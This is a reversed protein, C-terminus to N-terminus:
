KGATAPGAANSMRWVYAAVLDIQAATLKGEHVPMLSSRGKTITEVVNELGGGHLWVRDTLNPAGIAQNGKGDAGHCAACVTFKARGLNARVADSETGSLSLVYQAVNKVDEDTGLAGAMVPMQGQRGKTISTKIAEPTGGYLWDGDTLNPFGKSGRADSGHCQACNNMFIREGIGMARPDGALQETTKGQFQAYLPAVQQQMAQVEREYQGRETWGWKGPYSGLGPYLVLYGLAFVITIVFMWMWWRPLPNNYEQLTEDWVHGTTTDGGAAKVRKRSMSWLLWACAIIGVVTPIAIYYDWFRSVFDSM